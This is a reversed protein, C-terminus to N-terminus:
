DSGDGLAVATRDKLTPLLHEFTYKNSAALNPRGVFIGMSVGGIIYHTAGPEVEIALDDSAESHVRYVHRGVPVDLKFWTGSALRGLVGKGERVKYIVWSGRSVRERFFVLTGMPSQLDITTPQPPTDDLGEIIPGAPLRVDQATRASALGNRGLVIAMGRDNDSQRTMVNVALSDYDPNASGGVFGRLKVEQGAVRVHRAVVSLEGPRDHRAREVHIVEGVGEAGRPIVTRARVRVDEDVTFTFQDGPNSEQSSVRDSMRLMVLTMAPVVQTEDAPGAAPDAAQQSSALGATVLFVAPLLNARVLM